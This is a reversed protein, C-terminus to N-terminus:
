LIIKAGKKNRCSLHGLSASRLPAELLHAGKPIGLRMAMWCEFINRNKFAKMSSDKCNLMASGASFRSMKLPRHDVRRSHPGPSTTSRAAFRFLDSAPPLREAIGTNARLAEGRVVEKTVKKNPCLFTVGITLIIFQFKFIGRKVSHFIQQVIAEVIVIPPTAMVQMLHPRSM